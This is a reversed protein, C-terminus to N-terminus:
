SQEQQNVFFHLTVRATIQGLREQNQGKFNYNIQDLVMWHPQSELDKHLALVNESKGSYTLKLQFRELQVSDIVVSKEWGINKLQLQHKGVLQEVWKQQRLKFASASQMPFFLTEAKELYTDLQRSLQSDEDLRDFLNDVRSQKRELQRIETLQAEQWDLVPVVVLKLVLLLALLSLLVSYQKLTEM